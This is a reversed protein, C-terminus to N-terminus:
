ENYKGYTGVIRPPGEPFCIDYAEPALKKADPLGTHMMIDRMVKDIEHEGWAHQDLNERFMMLSEIVMVSEPTELLLMIADKM